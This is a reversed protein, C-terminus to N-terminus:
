QNFSHNSLFKAFELDLPTTIKLNTEEGPILHVPIGTKELLSADDTVDWDEQQSQLTAQWYPSLHFGQPTQTAVYNQRNVLKVQEGNIQRITDKLPIVPIVAPYHELARIVRSILETSCLPRAADHVIVKEVLRDTQIQALAAAVSDQRREGGLVLTLDPLSRLSNLSEQDEQAYVLYIHCIQPHSIVKRLTEELVSSDNLPLFLKNQNAGMRRGQGAAPLIAAVPTM